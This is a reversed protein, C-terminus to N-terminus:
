KRRNEDIEPSFPTKSCMKIIVKKGYFAANQTLIALKKRWSQRSFIKLLIM